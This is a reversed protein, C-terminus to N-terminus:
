RPRILDPLEIEVTPLDGVERKSIRLTIGNEVGTVASIPIVVEKRGWLHGEGLLVHSVRHSAPDLVLGHVRGIPGDTAYVPEGRKIEIEGTPVSDYTVTQSVGPVSDPDISHGGHLGYYPWSLVQEPGYTAYGVTGPVFQTEEASDFSAFEGATCRVRVGDAMAEAREVPVLRALGQRHEPEVVLHTVRETIPDVVVRTVTGCMGDDCEASGGITFSMTEAM